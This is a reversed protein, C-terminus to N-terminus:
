SSCLFTNIQIISTLKVKMRFLSDFLKSISRLSHCNDIGFVGSKKNWRNRRVCAWQELLLYRPFNFIWMSSFHDDVRTQCKHCFESTTAAGDLKRIFVVVCLGAAYYSDLSQLLCMLHIDHFHGYFSSVAPLFNPANRLSIPGFACHWHCM